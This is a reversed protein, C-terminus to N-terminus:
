GNNNLLLNHERIDSAASTLSTELSLVSRHKPRRTALFLLANGASRTKNLIRSGSPSLVRNNDISYNNKGYGHAAAPNAEVYEHKGNKADDFNFIHRKDPKGTHKVKVHVHINFSQLTFIDTM